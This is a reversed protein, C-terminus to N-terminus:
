ASRQLARLLALAPEALDFPVFIHDHQAGAIVNCGIRADALARSFAATFGVAHLDSTVSLTIWAARFLVPLGARRIEAEEAVVTWGERERILAVADIGRLEAGAPAVSYVYVGPNLEPEMERIISRLESDVHRM